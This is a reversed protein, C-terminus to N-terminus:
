RRGFAYSVGFGYLTGTPGGLGKARTGGFEAGVTAGLSKTIGLDVGVGARAVGGAKTGGTLYVYSPTAYVSFGHTAGIARRWGLAAGIPIETNSSVTDGTAAQGGGIGAFVGFGIASTAGGLPIAARAGYVTKSGGGGSVSRAGVGGSLQFRATASAWSVAAAYVSGDGGGYNAAGVIGPSAWANQLIPVGPMQAGLAPVFVAAIAAVVRGMRPRATRGFEDQM